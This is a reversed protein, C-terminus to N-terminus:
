RGLIAAHRASAHDHQVGHARSRKRIGGCVAVFAGVREAIDRAGHVAEVQGVELREAEPVDLRELAARRLRARGCDGPPQELARLALVRRGAVPLQHADDRRRRERRVRLPERVVHDVREHVSRAATHEAVLRGRARLDDLLEALLMLAGALPDDVRRRVGDELDGRVLLGDRELLEVLAALDRALNQGALVGDAAHDGTREDALGPVVLARRVPVVSFSRRSTSSPNMKVFRTSVSM